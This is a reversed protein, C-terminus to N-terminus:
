IFSTIAAKVDSPREVPAMHTERELIVVCAHPYRAKFSRITEGFFQDRSGGVVLMEIGDFSLGTADYELMANLYRCITDPSSLKARIKESTLRIRLRLLLNFWPRRFVSNFQALLQVLGGKRALDAQQAILLRGHSSFAPAGAILALKAVRGPFRAAVNSAVVAGYSVGVLRCRGGLQTKIIAAVDDAISHVSLEDPFPNYGLLIFHQGDPMIRAMRNADNALRATEPRMMFGQGGNIILIPDPGDGVKAFPIRDLFKGTQVAQM